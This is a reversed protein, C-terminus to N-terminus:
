NGFAPTIAAGVKEKAGSRWPGGHAGIFRDFDLDLLRELDGRLSGGEPAMFKLWIPGVILTRKFGMFPMMIRALLTLRGRDAWNQLADCTVLIGGARKILLACEPRKAGRFEVLEADTVPLDAGEALVKTPTPEKYHTSDAQCWFESGYHDVYYRDDLGHVCGLRVVHKVTGLRDLAQEGAASLRVANFVTLTEGERVVTMNRSLGMVANLRASGQVWFVGDALEELEGHPQSAAYDSAMPRPDAM